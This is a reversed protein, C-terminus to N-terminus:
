TASVVPRCTCRERPPRPGSAIQFRHVGWLPPSPLERSPGLRRLTERRSIARTGSYLQRRAAHTLERKFEAVAAVAREHRLVGRSPRAGPPATLQDEDYELLLRWTDAYGGILDLVHKGTSDVLTRNRLTTALLDLTDRAEQLGREALRQQNLIFGRVLHERLTRTAWQRFRVGRRSNVRYGVSSIADLNYNTLTRQVQRSGETRVVLSEKTTAERELEQASFINNLHFSVNNTSTDFLDAMQGQTLWVTERDFRVEIRTEGDETEYVVIHGGPSTPPAVASM